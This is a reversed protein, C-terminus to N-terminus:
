QTVYFQNQILVKIYYDPMMLFFIFCLLLVYSVNYLDRFNTHIHDGHWDLPDSKMRLNDRPFYGPPYRFIFLFLLKSITFCVPIHSLKLFIQEDCNPTTWRKLFFDILLCSMVCHWVKVRYINSSGLLKELSNALIICYIVMSYILRICM